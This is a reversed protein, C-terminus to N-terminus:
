KRNWYKSLTRSYSNELHRMVAQQAKEPNQAGVAEYIAWHESLVKNADILNNYVSRVEFRLYNDLIDEISRLLWGNGSAAALARHFQHDIHYLMVGDKSELNKKIEDLFGRMKDLDQKTARQAALAACTQETYFRIELIDYIDNAGIPVIKIGKGRCFHVYGEKQLELLAERVPTRSIGLEQCIGEQSYIADARFRQYLIADKILDYAQQKYTPTVIQPQDSFIGTAATTEAM